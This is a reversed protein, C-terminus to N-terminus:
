VGDGIYKLEKNAQTLTEEICNLTMEVAEINVAIAPLAEFACMLMSANWFACRKGCCDDKILPCFKMNSM